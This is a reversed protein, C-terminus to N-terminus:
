VAPPPRFISFSLGVPFKAPYNPYTGIAISRCFLANVLKIPLVENHNNKQHTREQKKEKEETQKIKQALYCKGNCHMWPKDKNVCLNAAIYPRNLEFGEYVFFRSLNASMMATLLLFALLRIRM